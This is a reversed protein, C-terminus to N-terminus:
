AGNWTAVVSANKVTMSRQPGTTRRTVTTRVTIPEVMEWSEGPWLWGYSAATDAKTLRVAHIAATSLRVRRAYM